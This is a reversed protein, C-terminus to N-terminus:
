LLVEEYIALLQQFNAEPSFHEEFMQRGNLGMRQAIEPNDWLYHVKEALSDASKPEFHLGTEGDIVTNLLTGLGSAIVPKASASAELSVLGFTEYWQSPFVLATAYRLLAMAEERSKHGLIQVNSMTEARTRVEDMLPGDGVIKIPISQPLLEWADLLRHLGKEATFRGLFLFYRDDQLSIGPDEQLFNPKIALKEAKLGGSVFLNKTFESLCIYKDVQRDWTSLLRHTTLM